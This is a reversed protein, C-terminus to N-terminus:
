AQSRSLPPARLLHLPSVFANIRVSASEAIIEEHLLKPQQQPVSLVWLQPTVFKHEVQRQPVPAAATAENRQDLWMRTTSAKTVKSHHVYHSLKLGYSWGGVILAMALVPLVGPELFQLIALKLAALKANAHSRISNHTDAIPFPGPL